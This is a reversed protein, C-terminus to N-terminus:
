QKRERVARSYSKHKKQDTRFFNDFTFALSGPVHVMGCVVPGIAKVPLRVTWATYTSRNPIEASPAPRARQLGVFCMAEVAPFCNSELHHADPSFGSDLPHAKSGRRCDFYFPERKRGNPPRKGSASLTAADFVAKGDNMPDTNAPDIARLMANLILREKMSGAWTKISKDAWWDLLLEIPSQITIPEFQSDDDEHTDDSGGEADDAEFTLASAKALLEGITVHCDAVATSQGETALIHFTSPIGPGGFWAEAGPWVRDALEFLGCCAFFQGPNTLDVRISIGAASASM